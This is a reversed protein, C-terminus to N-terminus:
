RSGETAVLYRSTTLLDLVDEVEGRTVNQAARVVALWDDFHTMAATDTIRRMLRALVAKTLRSPAGAAALHASVQLIPDSVHASLVSFLGHGSLGEWGTALPQKLCLCGHLALGSAGWADLNVSPDPRGIRALEALSLLSVGDSQQSAERRRVAEERWEDVGADGASWDHGALAERGRGIAALIGARDEDTLDFPDLFAIGLALGAQDTGGMTPAREPPIDVLLPLTQYAIATELVLLSHRVHWPRSQSQVEAALRWPGTATQSIDGLALDHLRWVDGALSVRSDDEGSHVAYAIAALTDAALTDSLLLLPRVVQPLYEYRRSMTVGLLGGKAEAIVARITSEGAVSRALNEAPGLLTSEPVERLDAAPEDLRAALGKLEEVSRAGSLKRAIRCLDLVPTISNSDQRSRVRRLRDYEGGALDVRFLREGWEFVPAADGEDRGALARLIAEEADVSAKPGGRGPSAATVAPIFEEDLWRCIGGAYRGDEDPTLGVLSTVLRVATNKDITRAVRARDVLNLAGQFQVLGVRATREVLRLTFIDATRAAAAYVGPTTVGTRELTLMLSPFVVFGRLAVLVDHASQQPVGRFVRWSFLIADLRVRADAPRAAMVTEVLWAADVPEGDGGPEYTFWPDPLGPARFAESWLRKWSGGPPTSDDTLPAVMLVLTPDLPRRALPQTAADKGRWTRFAAALAAFREFRKREDPIWAGFAYRQRAPDLHAVTDYFWALAGIDRALLERVFERPKNTERGVLQEWLPTFESGGPAQIVGGRIRISRAAAAFFGARPGSAAEILRRDAAFADATEPDLAMAGYYVLSAARDSLITLGLNEANVERGLIVRWAEIGFPLPLEDSRVSGEVRVKGGANLLKALADVDLGAAMLVSRVFIGEPSDDSVLQAPKGWGRKLVYGITRAFSEAIGTREGAVVPPTLFLEPSRQLERLVSEIARSCEAVRRANDGSEIGGPPAHLVRIISLFAVDPEEDPPLGLATLYAATGGMLRM